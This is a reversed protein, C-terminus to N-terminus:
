SVRREAEYPPPPVCNGADDPRDTLTIRSEGEM